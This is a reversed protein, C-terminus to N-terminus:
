DTDRLYTGLNRETGGGVIVTGVKRNAPVHGDPIFVFAHLEDIAEAAHSVAATQGIPARVFSVFATDGEWSVRAGPCHFAPDPDPTFILRVGDDHLSKTLLPFTDAPYTTPGTSGRCGLVLAAVVLLTRTTSGRSM